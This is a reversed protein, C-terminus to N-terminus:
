EGLFGCFITILNLGAVDVATAVRSGYRAYDGGFTYILISHILIISLMMLSLGISNNDFFALSHNTISKVAGYIIALLISLLSIGYFVAFLPDLFPVLIDLTGSIGKSQIFMSYDSPSVTKLVAGMQRSKMLDAPMYPFSWLRYTGKAIAILNELPHRRILHIAMDKYSMYKDEDWSYLPSEKEARGHFSTTNRSAMTIFHSTKNNELEEKNQNIKNLREVRIEVENNDTENRLFWRLDEEEIIGDGGMRAILFKYTTSQTETNSFGGGKIASLVPFSFLALTSLGLLLWSRREIRGSAIKQIVIVFFVCGIITYTYTIHMLM